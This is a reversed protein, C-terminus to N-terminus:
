RWYDYPKAVYWKIVLSLIPLMFLGALFLEPYASIWEVLADAVAAIREFSHTAQEPYKNALAVLGLFVLPPIINKM